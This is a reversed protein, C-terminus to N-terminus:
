YRLLAGISGAEVLEPSEHVIEVEGGDAMVRRVAMEVADEITEFAQGCFPCAEPAHTTLFGCGQCRFGAARFGDRVVLTQVRGEHVAGLTEDLGLVGERGKAAATILSQILRAEEQREAQRAAELARAWVEAPSATMDIPFTGAVLSRWAKPLHEQFHAVNAESGGLFVRRVRQAQFFRAASAAAEKLNREAVEEAYRTQGAVGGRRGPAQSGGGRKTHRVAEGLAEQSAMLQGLHFHFLRAGQQDVLAVGIHGYHDLLDALPKVYPRNLLRARSRIPVAFTYARFFDEPACSFIALGRGSRDYGHEIYREVAETDQPARAEYDKLMQRLHRKLTDSPAAQDVELYVSLVDHGPRYDILEQLDKQTLM